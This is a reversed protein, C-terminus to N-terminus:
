KGRGFLGSLDVEVKPQTEGIGYSEDQSKKDGMASYGSNVLSRVLRNAAEPNQRSAQLLLKATQPSHMAANVMATLPIVFALGGTTGAVAHGVATGIAAGGISTGSMVAFAQKSLLYSMVQQPRSLGSQNIKGAPDLESLVQSVEMLATARDPGLATKLRDPGFKLISKALDTGQIVPGYEVTDTIAGKILRTAMADALNGATEPDERDLIKMVAGLQDEGKRNGGGSTMFHEVVTEPDSRMLKTVAAAEGYDLGYRSQLTDVPNPNSYSPGGGFSNKALQASAEDPTLNRPGPKPSNFIRDVDTLVKDAGEAGKKITAESKSLPAGALKDLAELGAKNQKLGLERRAGSGAGMLNTLGEFSGTTEPVSTPLNYKDAMEGLNTTKAPLAAQAMLMALNVGTYVGIKGYQTDPQFDAQKDGISGVTSGIGIGAARTLARAIRAGPGLGPIKDALMGGIMDGASAGLDQGPTESPQMMGGILAGGVGMAPAVYPAAPGTLPAILKGTQYGTMGMNIANSARGGAAKLEPPLEGKKLQPSNEAPFDQSNQFAELMSGSPSPTPRPQEQGSPATATKQEDAGAQVIMQRKLEEVRKESDDM